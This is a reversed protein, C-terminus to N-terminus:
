KRNQRLNLDSILISVCKNYGDGVRFWEKLNDLGIDELTLGTREYLNQIMKLEYEEDDMGDM